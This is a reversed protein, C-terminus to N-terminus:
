RLTRAVQTKAIADKLCLFDVMWSEFMLVILM